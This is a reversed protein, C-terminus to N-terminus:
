SGQRQEGQRLQSELHAFRDAQRLCKFYKDFAPEAQLLAEVTDPNAEYLANITEKLRSALDILEAVSAGLNARLPDQTHLSQRMLDAMRQHRLDSLEVDQPMSESPEASTANM